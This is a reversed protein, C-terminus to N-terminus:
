NPCNFVPHKGMCVTGDAKFKPCLHLRQCAGYRGDGVDRCGKNSDHYDWCFDEAFPSGPGPPSQLAHGEMHPPISGGRKRKKSM